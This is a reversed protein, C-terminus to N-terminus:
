DFLQRIGIRASVLASRLENTRSLKRTPKSFTVDSLVRIQLTNGAVSNRLDEINLTATEVASQTDTMGATLDDMRDRTERAYNTVSWGIEEVHTELQDVNQRAQAIHDLATKNTDRIVGIMTKEILAQADPDGSLGSNVNALIGLSDLHQKLQDDSQGRMAEHTPALKDLHGALTARCENDLQGQLANLGQKEAWRAGATAIISSGETVVDIGTFLVQSTSDMLGVTGRGVDRRETYAKVVTDYSSQFTADATPDGRPQKAAIVILSGLSVGYGGLAISLQQQDPDPTRDAAKVVRQPV